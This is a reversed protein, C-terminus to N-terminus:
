TDRVRHLARRAAGCLRSGGVLLIPGPEAACRGYRTSSARLRASISASCPTRSVYVKDQGADSNPGPLSAATVEGYKDRYEPSNRRRTRTPAVAAPPVWFSVGHLRRQESQRDGEDNRQYGREDARIEDVPVLKARLELGLRRPDDARRHADGALEVRPQQRRRRQLQARHRNAADVVEAFDAGFLEVDLEAQARQHAALHAGGFQGDVAHREIEAEIGLAPDVQRGRGAGEVQSRQRDVPQVEGAADCQMIRRAPARDFEAIDGKATIHAREGSRDAAVATEHEVPCTIREPDRGALGLVAVAGADMEIDIGALASQRDIELAHQIELLARWAELARRRQGCRGRCLAHGHRPPDDRLDLGIVGGGPEIM